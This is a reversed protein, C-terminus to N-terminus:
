KPAMPPSTRSRTTIRGSRSSSPRAGGVSVRFLHGLLTFILSEGDPSLTVDPRTVEVTDLEITRWGGDQAVAPGVVLVTLCAICRVALRRMQKTRYLTRSVNPSPCETVDIIFM